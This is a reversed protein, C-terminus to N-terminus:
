IDYSLGVEDMGSVSVSAGVKRLGRVVRTTAFDDCLAVACGGFGRTGSSKAALAGCERAVRAFNQLTTNRIGLDNVISDGCRNMCEALDAASLPRVGLAGALDDATRVYRVIGAERAQWRRQLDQFQGAFPSSRETHAVVLALGEPPALRTTRPRGERFDMRRLGGYAVAMQDMRGCPVQLLDHEARFAMEVIDDHTATLGFSAAFAAVLAVTLAASSGLGGATPLNGAVVVRAGTPTGGARGVVELGASGFGHVGSHGPILVESTGEDQYVIRVEPADTREVSVHVRLDSLAVNVVRGGIWDLHEGALCARGPVSVRITPASATDM